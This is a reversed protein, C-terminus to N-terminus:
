NEMMTLIVYLLLVHVLILDLLYTRQRASLQISYGDLILVNNTDYNAVAIDSQNDNNFDTVAVMIPYSGSISDFTTLTSFSGNGYGLLIHIQNNESDVVVVDLYTNNDFYGVNLFQPRSQSDILFTIQTSFSGNGHGLFIGISGNGYNAVVIDLQQDNNFDGFAISSPNSNYNTTYISESTFTGNSYGLFVLINDTGYNAVAIDLKNDKNFDAVILSYPFSDYGTSYIISSQFSGNGNGLLIGINDTAYFVVAIDSQNDKNFDAITIFWPRYSGTSFIKQNDFTRNQYGLFIGISNAGSNAVAIDFYNDNNFHNIVISSPRSGSGTSYIQENGFTQNDNSLFIGITNTGINAVVIDMKNDKNLDEIAIFRPQSSDILSSKDM